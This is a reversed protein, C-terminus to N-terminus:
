KLLYPTLEKELIRILEPDNRPYIDPINLVIIKDPKQGYYEQLLKKMYDEMVFIVDAGDALYKTIPNEAYVAIGASAAEINLNHEQAIQNCVDAGTPSRNLNGYCIFLINKRHEKM